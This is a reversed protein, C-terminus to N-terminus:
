PFTNAGRGQQSIEAERFNRKLNMNLIDPEADLAQLETPANQSILLILTESAPQFACPLKLTSCKPQPTRRTTRANSQSLGRVLDSPPLPLATQLYIHPNRATYWFDTQIFYVNRFLWSSPPSSDLVLCCIGGQIWKFGGRLLGFGM